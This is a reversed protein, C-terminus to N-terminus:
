NPPLPLTKNAHKRRLNELCSELAIAFASFFLGESHRHCENEFM